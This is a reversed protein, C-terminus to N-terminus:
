NEVALQDRLRLDREIAARRHSDHRGDLVSVAGDAGHERAFDGLTIAVFPQGVVGDVHPEGAGGALTEPGPERAAHGELEFAVGVIIDALPQRTAADDRPGGGIGAYHRLFRDYNTVLHHGASAFACAVG